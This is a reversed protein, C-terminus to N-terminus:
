GAASIFCPGMARIECSIGTTTIAGRQPVEEVIGVALEVGVTDIRAINDRHFGGVSLDDICLYGLHRREFYGNIEVMRQCALVQVKDALNCFYAIGVRGLQLSDTMVAAATAAAVAAVTAVFAAIVTAAFTPFLNLAYHM